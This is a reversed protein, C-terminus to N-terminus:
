EKYDASLRVAAEAALPSRVCEEQEMTLQCCLTSGRFRKAAFVLGNNRKNLLKNDIQNPDGILIIKSGAGIRSVISLIQNPTCNQAEDIIVFTNTISRGRMYQMAEAKITGRDFLYQVPSPCEKGDKTGRFSSRNCGLIEELNDIFPRMMPGVKEEETGPLYGYTADMEVNARTILIRKYEGRDLVLELGCALSMFTKATGAPGNIIVLPIESAPLMMAEQTFRQGSNRTVIGSPKSNLFRLSELVGNGMYRSLVANKPNGIDKVTVFQNIELGSFESLHISGSHRLTDISESDISIEARGTYSLEADSVSKNRFHQTKVHIIDAFFSMDVDDTVLIVECGTSIKTLYSAAALIMDDNSDSSMGPVFDSFDVDPIIYLRGLGDGLPIGTVLNSGPNERRLDDMKAKVRRASYGVEGDKHKLNNIERLTVPSVYLDHEQFLFLCEPEYIFINTDLVYLKKM